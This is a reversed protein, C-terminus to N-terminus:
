QRAGASTVTSNHTLKKEFCVAAANGFYKGFNPIRKYGRSEYFRVARENVLRTELWLARYGMKAAEGELYALIVSGVGSSTQRSFMRKVEAVGDHIPRFAGCGVAQGKGDRAVVFLANPVKVDNPDFSSKGDDGTISALTASLEEIM